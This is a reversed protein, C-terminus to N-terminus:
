SWWANTRERYLLAGRGGKWNTNKENKRVCTVRRNQPDAGGERGMQAEARREAPSKEGRDKEEPRCREAWSRKGRSKERNQTTQKQRVNTVICKKPLYICYRYMCACHVVVFTVSGVFILRMRTCFLLHAPTIISTWPMVLIELLMVAESWYNTPSVHSRMRPRMLRQSHKM